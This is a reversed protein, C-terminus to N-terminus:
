SGQEGYRYGGDAASDAQELFARRFCGPSAAGPEALGDQISSMAQVEWGTKLSIKTDSPAAAVDEPSNYRELDAFCKLNANIPRFLPKLNLV